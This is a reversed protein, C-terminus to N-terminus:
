RSALAVEPLRPAVVGAFKRRYAAPTLGAKRKFLRRFSTPDEYGVAYAVDEVSIDSTELLQKAEEVRITHVYDMPQQGTAARFRRAFTRPKLRARAAMRTVPNTCAYNEAIWLQSDRIVADGNQIRPTMVAFPLQGDTHESLLYIKTTQLAHEAGCLRAILYMALDQWSSVAGATIIREHEGALCLVSNERLRVKPYHERFMDRYCWHGAAELGDLLGAEALVLSGSCVSAVIAGKEHMRKLWAIERQYRGRPPKDVPQYMDCVIVVETEEAEDVGFDPEVMVNGYCRFPEAAAAVIKVDVMPRGPAGSVIEPYLAGVTTFVDFLGYLVLPSTEAAALM